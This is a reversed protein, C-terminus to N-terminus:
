DIGTENGKLVAPVGVCAPQVVLDFAAEAQLAEDRGGIDEVVGAADRISAMDLEKTAAEFDTVNAQRIATM